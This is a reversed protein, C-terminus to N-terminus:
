DVGSSATSVSEDPSSSAVQSAWEPWEVRAVSLPVSGGLMARLVLPRAFALLIHFTVLTAIVLFSVDHVFTAGTRISDPFSDPWRLILGTAAVCVMLGALTSAVLKQGANFKGIQGRGVRGASLLWATDHEGWESLSRFEARLSSVRLRGLTFAWWALWMFGSWVHIDKVVGRNAVRTSIWEVYLASGTAMMALMLAANVWHVLRVWLTFREIREHSAEPQNMQAGTQDGSGRM